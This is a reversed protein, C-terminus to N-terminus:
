IKSSMHESNGFIGAQHRDRLDSLWENPHVTPFGMENTALCFFAKNQQDDPSGEM